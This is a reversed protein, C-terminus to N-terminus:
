VIFIITPLICFLCALLVQVGYNVMNITFRLKSYPKKPVWVKVFRMESNAGDKWSAHKGWSSKMFCHSSWYINEWVVKPIGWLIECKPWHTSQNSGLDISCRILLHMFLMKVITIECHCWSLGNPFINLWLWFMDTIHHWIQHISL